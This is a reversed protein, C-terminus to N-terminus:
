TARRPVGSHYGGAAHSHSTHLKCLHKQAQVKLRAVARSEPGAPSSTVATMQSDKQARQGYCGLPPRAPLSPWPLPGRSLAVRKDFFRGHTCTHMRIHMHTVSHTHKSFDWSTATGAGAPTM